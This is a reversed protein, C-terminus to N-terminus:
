GTRRRGSGRTRWADAACGPWAAFGAESPFWIQISVYPDSLHPLRKKFQMLGKGQRSLAVNKLAESCPALSCNAKGQEGAKLSGSFLSGGEGGAGGRWGAFPLLFVLLRRGGLWKVRRSATEEGSSPVPM